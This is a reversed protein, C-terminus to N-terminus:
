EKRMTCSATLEVSDGIITSTVGTLVNVDKKVSITVEVSQNNVTVVSGPACAMALNKTDDEFNSEKWHIAAYRAGERSANNVQIKNFFLWGFDMAGFILLLLLPLVLAFEVVAQGDEKKWKM